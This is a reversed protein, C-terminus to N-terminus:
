PPPPAPPSGAEGAALAALRTARAPAEPEHKFYAHVEREGAERALREAWPGLEADTYDRRLRYYALPGDLPRPPAPWREDDTVVLAASRRALVREVAPDFWSPDRFEVAAPLGLGELVADLLGEDRRRTPPWQLLVPGLREGLVALQPRLVRALEVKDFADSSYTLGRHAKFCFRFGSPTERAWRAFAAPAPTRYFSGNLEVGRLREAYYGLMAAGSLRPPYFVGRWAPYSFGSTGSYLM